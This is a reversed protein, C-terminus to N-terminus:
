EQWQCSHRSPHSVERLHTGILESFSATSTVQDYEGNKQRARIASNMKTAADPLVYNANM